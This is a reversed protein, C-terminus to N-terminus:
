HANQEFFFFFWPLRAVALADGLCNPSAQCLLTCFHVVGNCVCVGHGWSSDRHKPSAAGTSCWLSGRRHLSICCCGAHLLVSCLSEEKAREEIPAEWRSRYLLEALSSIFTLNPFLGTKVNTTAKIEGDQALYIFLYVRSKTKRKM